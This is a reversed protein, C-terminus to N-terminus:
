LDCDEASTRLRFQIWVHLSLPRALKIEVNITCFVMCLHSTDKLSSVSPTEVAVLQKRQGTHGPQVCKDYNKSRDKNNDETSHTYQTTGQGEM